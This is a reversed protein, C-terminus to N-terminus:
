ATQLLELTELRPLRWPAGGGPERAWWAGPHARHCPAFRHPGTAPRSSSSCGRAVASIRGCWAAAQSRPCALFHAVSAVRGLRVGEDPVLPIVDSAALRKHEGCPVRRKLREGAGHWGRGRPALPSHTVVRPESQYRSPMITRNLTGSFILMSRRFLEQRRKGRM